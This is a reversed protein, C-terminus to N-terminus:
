FRCLCLHLLQRNRSAVNVPARTAVFDSYPCRSISAAFLMRMSNICIRGENKGLLHLNVFALRNDDLDIEESTFVSPSALRMTVLYNLFVQLGSFGPAAFKGKLIVRLDSDLSSHRATSDVLDLHVQLHLNMKYHSDSVGVLSM